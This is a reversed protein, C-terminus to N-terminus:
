DIHTHHIFQEYLVALVMLGGSLTKYLYISGRQSFVPRRPKRGPGVCVPSDLWLLYSSAQFKSNLFYLSQIIWTTFVLAHDAEPNGRLQDADKNECICFASKRM